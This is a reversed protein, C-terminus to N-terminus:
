GNIWGTVHQGAGRGGGRGGGGRGRNPGAGLGFNKGFAALSDFPNPDLGATAARVLWANVSVGDRAAAADIDTKLAESLRLSIRASTDGDDPRQEQAPTDDHSLRVDVTAENGDLRVAVTPAGPLDVLVSTIEDATDSVAALVALRVAPEAAGALAEAVERTRDDGLAAAARIQTAVQSSYEDLQM